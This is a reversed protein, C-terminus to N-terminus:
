QRNIITVVEKEMTQALKKLSPCASFEFVNLMSLLEILV